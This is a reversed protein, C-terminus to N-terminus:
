RSPMPTPSTLAKLEQEAFAKAGPDQGPGIQLFKEFAAVADSTQGKLKYLTGLGYYVEPLDPKLDRAKILLPEASSLDQEQLYVAAMLYLTEADEPNSRLVAQYQELAKPFQGMQYYVVGLNAHASSLGPDLDLATKYATEAEFLKNQRVYVNGLGFQARASQGDLALADKYEQEAAALDNGKLAADAAQLHTAADGSPRTPTLAVIATPAPSDTPVLTAVAQATGSCGAVVLSLLTVILWRLSQTGFRM